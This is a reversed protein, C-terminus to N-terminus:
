YIIQIRSGGTKDKTVVIQRDIRDKLETVHSIIGILRNGEALSVLARVALDLTDGDLSGFGEDVFLSDMRIGGSSSEMEDSLGLALSLSAEFTEGGSLTKISRETGNYHDIVSLELGSQSRNNEAETCRKMEYQGGSMLLFRRNAKEIIREFCTEQIWTELMIKEKGTLNGNATNSLEKVRSWDGEAATLATRKERIQKQLNANLDSRSVAETLIRSIKKKGDNLESLRRVATEFKKKEEGTEGEKVRAETKEATKEKEAMGSRLSTIKKELEATEKEAREKESETESISKELEKKRTEKKREEALERETEEIRASIDAEKKEAQGSLEEASFTGQMGEKGFLEGASSLIRKEQEGNRGKITGAETSCKQMFGAASESQKKAEQIEQESPAGCSIAAPNPHTLSGCVPCAKGESLGSALIGAQESLFLRNKEQYEKDALAAADSAKRFKEQAIKLMGCAKGYDALERCFQIVANRETEEKAKRNTLIEAQTGTDKLTEAEAKMKFLKESIEKERTKGSELQREASFLLKRDRDLEAKLEGLEKELQRAAKEREERKGMLLQNKGIEKETVALEAELSDKTEQDAASLKGILEETEEGTLKGDKAKKVEESFASDAPCSIESVYQSIGATLEACRRELIGAKEKLAGQLKQYRGTKFIRRFINKREETGALILKRFDGQAIMAIQMFQDRNTGLIETVAATVDKTKTIVRGDPMTLCADAKETTTGGGRRSPREYDPNRKVTYTKGGYEFVLEAETPVDAGAYRSRFMSPERTDGSAEGFLAFTIADFITTKGAGTDGTILYLGRSGLKEFDVVTVGAYPGFASVTLKLPRM